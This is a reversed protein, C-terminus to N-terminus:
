RRAPLDYRVATVRCSASDRGLHVLPLSGPTLADEDAGIAVGTIRRREPDVVFSVPLPLYTFWDHSRNNAAARGFRRALISTRDGPRIGNFALLPGVPADGDFDGPQVRAPHGACPESEIRGGPSTDIAVLRGTDYQLEALHVHTAPKTDRAGAPFAYLVARYRRRPGADATVVPRGIRQVVVNESMGLTVPGIRWCAPPVGDKAGRAVASALRASCDDADAPIAASSPVGPALLAAAVGLAFM